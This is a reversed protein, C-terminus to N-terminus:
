CANSSNVFWQSSIHNTSSGAVRRTRRATTSAPSLASTLMRSPLRMGYMKIPGSWASSYTVSRVFVSTARHAAEPEARRQTAERVLPEGPAVRELLEHVLDRLEPEPGAELLDPELADTAERVDIRLELLGEFPKEVLMPELRRREACVDVESPARVPQHTAILHHRRELRLDLGCSN